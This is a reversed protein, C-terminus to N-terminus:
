TIENIKYWKRVNLMMVYRNYFSSECCSVVTPDKVCYLINFLKLLRKVVVILLIHM